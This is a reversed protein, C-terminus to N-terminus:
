ARKGSCATFDLVTEKSPCGRQLRFALVLDFSRERERGRERERERERERGTEREEREAATDREKNFSLLFFYPFLDLM